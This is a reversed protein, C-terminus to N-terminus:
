DIKFRLNGGYIFGESYIYAGGLILEEFIAKSFYLGWPKNESNKPIKGFITSPIKLKRFHLNKQNRMVKWRM